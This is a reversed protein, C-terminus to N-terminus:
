LCWDWCGWRSAMTSRVGTQKKWFFTVLIVCFTVAHVRWCITAHGAGLRAWRQYFHKQHSVWVREGRLGRLFITAAGDFLFYWLLLMVLVIGEGRSAENGFLPISAFAFGLTVSGVDGLFIKAPAWNFRIFGLAAAGLCVGWVQVLGDESMLALGFGALVTQLSSFGDIGDLFNFLNCVGVLWFLTVGYALVNHDFAIGGFVPLERIPGALYIVLGGAIFQSFLRLLIPQSKVDDFLSIAGVLGLPILPLLWRHQGALLTALVLGVGLGALVFLGGGSPVACDHVSHKKPRDVLIAIGGRRVVRATFLWATFLALIGGWVM